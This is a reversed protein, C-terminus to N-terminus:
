APRKTDKTDVNEAELDNILQVLQQHTEVKTFRIAYFLVTGADKIHADENMLTVPAAISIHLYYNGEESIDIFMNYPSRASFYDKDTVKSSYMMTREGQHWFGLLLLKQELNSM